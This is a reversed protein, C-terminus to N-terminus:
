AAAGPGLAALGEDDIGDEVAAGDAELHVADLLEDIRVADPDDAEGLDVGGEEKYLNVRGRMDRDTELQQHFIEREMDVSGTEGDAHDVDVDLADLRWHRKKPPADPDQVRAKRVLVVDPANTLDAYSACNAARVDYGM